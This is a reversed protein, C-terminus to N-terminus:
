RGVGFGRRNREDEWREAVSTYDVADDQRSKLIEQVSRNWDETAEEERTEQMLDMYDINDKM